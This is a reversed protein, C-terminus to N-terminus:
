AVSAGVLRRATCHRVSRLGCAGVVLAFEPVTKHHFTRSPAFQLTTTSSGRPSDTSPRGMAKIVAREHVADGESLLGIAVLIDRSALGQM